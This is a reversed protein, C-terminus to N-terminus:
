VPVVVSLMYKTLQIRQAFGNVIRLCVRVKVFVIEFRQLARHLDDNPLVRFAVVRMGRKTRYVILNVREASRYARAVLSQVLPALLKVKGHRGQGFVKSIFKHLALNAQNGLAVFEYTFSFSKDHLKLPTGVNPAPKCCWVFVVGFGVVVVVAFGVAVVVVAAVVAVAVAVVVVVAVGAVAVAVIVVVVVAVVM